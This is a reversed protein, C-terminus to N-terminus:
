TINYWVGVFDLVGWPYTNCKSRPASLALPIELEPKVLYNKWFSILIRALPLGLLFIRSINAM